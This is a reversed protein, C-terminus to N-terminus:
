ATSPRSPFHLARLEFGLGLFTKLKIFDWKDMWERLQQATPTRNLFDKDKDIVELTSGAREQVLQLTKLRINFDRIWKSNINTYPSLYPDLKLKKRISLWQELCCKNFLSDKEM